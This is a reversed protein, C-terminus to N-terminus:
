MTLFVIFYFATPELITVRTNHTGGVLGAMDKGYNTVYYHMRNIGLKIIKILNSTLDISTYCLQGV